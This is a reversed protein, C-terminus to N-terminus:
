VPAGRLKYARGTEDRPLEIMQDCGLLRKPTVVVPDVIRWIHIQPTAVIDIARLPLCRSSPDPLAFPLLPLQLPVDPRNTELEAREVTERQLLEELPLRSLDCLPLQVVDEPDVPHDPQELRQLM